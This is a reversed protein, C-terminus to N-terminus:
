LRNNVYKVPFQNHSQLHVLILGQTYFSHSIHGINLDENNLIVKSCQQEKAALIKRNGNDSYYYKNAKDEVYYKTIKEDKLQMKKGKVYPSINLLGQIDASLGFEIIM